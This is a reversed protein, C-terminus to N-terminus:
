QASIRERVDDEGNVIYAKSEYFKTKITKRKFLRHLVPPPNRPRRYDLRTLIRSEVKNAIAM